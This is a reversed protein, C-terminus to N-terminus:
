RVVQCSTCHKGCSGAKRQECRDQLESGDDFCRVYGERTHEYVSGQKASVFLQSTRCFSSRVRCVLGFGENGLELSGFLDAEDGSAVSRSCHQWTNARDRGDFPEIEAAQTICISGAPVSSGVAHADKRGSDGHGCRPVTLEHEFARQSESFLEPVFTCMYMKPVILQQM